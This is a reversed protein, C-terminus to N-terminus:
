IDHFRVQASSSQWHTVSLCVADVHKYSTAMHQQILIGDLSDSRETTFDTWAELAKFGHIHLEITNTILQMFIGVNRRGCNFPEPVRAWTLFAKFKDFRRIRM